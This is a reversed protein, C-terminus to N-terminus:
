LRIFNIVLALRTYGLGYLLGMVAASMALTIFAYREYKFINKIEKAFQIDGKSFLRIIPDMFISMVIFGVLAITINIILTKKFGDIAREYNKNGINQSIISAEGDQFGNGLGTIIGSIHNSIGLAGVVMVGYSASMSNVIVKGFSFAFREFFIPAALIIIPNIFAWSVDINEKSLRFINDGRLMDMIAIITLISHSILTAIAMATIGWHFVYIFLATLSLKVMIVLLNLYLIIKTNGKAKEVAIYVNNIFMSVMVSIEIIFYHSGVEILASPTNALKLIPKTCPIIVILLLLALSTAMFFLTNVYKKAKEIEGAGYCRAIIIGGSVSLGTGIATFMTKIQSLYTVASVVNSSIQSAMFTDLVTFLHNFGNYIALPISISLIVKWMNDELVFLRRQSDKSSLGDNM